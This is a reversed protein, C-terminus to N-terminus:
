QSFQLSIDLIYALAELNIIIPQNKHERLIYSASGKPCLSSAKMSASNLILIKLKGVVTLRQHISRQKPLM